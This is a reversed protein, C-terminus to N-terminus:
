EKGEQLMLPQRRVGIRSSPGINEISCQKTDFNCTYTALCQKDTNFVRINYSYDRAVNGLRNVFDYRQLYDLISWIQQNVLLDVRAPETNTAPYAIWNNLLKSETQEKAWWLSPISLKAQDITNATVIGNPPLVGPKLLSLNLPAVSPKPIASNANANPNNTLCVTQATTQSNTQALSPLTPLLSILSFSISLLLTLSRM